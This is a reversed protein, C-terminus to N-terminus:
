ALNQIRSKHDVTATSRRHVRGCASLLPSTRPNAGAVPGSQRLATPIPRVAKAAAIAKQTKTLTKTPM